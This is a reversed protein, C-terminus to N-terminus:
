LTVKVPKITGDENFEMKDICTERNYGGSLGMKIGEPRTFRHYIMYWEDTGPVNLVSNHGTGFIQLKPNQQLIIQEEVKAPKGNRVFETPSDSILYRIRYRASRTINESWMFYYLGNREFVYTGELYHYEGIKERPILEKITGPAISVMDKGLEAMWLYSNGWYIYYKGSKPDQFVDPDIVINPSNLEEQTLMPKGLADVFPGEPKDAVAVGITKNAVFYYYYLYGTASSKYNQLSTTKSKKVKKEIICPAWAYEKGWSLERLDLIVGEDKWTKLDTSSFCHFDFNHWGFSGDTTPYIYYKGTQKSYLAEPDAYLGPFVPNNVDAALHQSEQDDSWKQLRNYEEETLRLFSGHQPGNIGEIDRPNSFKSLIENADCLRYRHPHSSYEVYGIQWAGGKLQFASAGECMKNGEFKVYNDADPEPWPGTLSKSKTTFIGRTGGEKKIMMHYMSDSPIWNIDADITAYGWDFLLQPKTITTFSEDAYSYYMRDYEEVEPDLMSYYIMYGGKHGDPWVHTADWIIQPAWVRVVSPQWQRFDFSRSRWHILDNSTLLDIGYNQWENQKGMRKTSSNNMDTTVMLFGKNNHRRCIYADRTGGEIKAMQTPSFISDGCLLDHFHLGDQSLAYATWQGHDSMHCNLYGYTEEDPLIYNGSIAKALSVSPLTEAVSALQKLEKNSVSYNYIRFDAIQTEALYKDGRFPAKGIWCFSPAEKFTEALIPMNNNKGILIGNLYLEGRKGHQRYLAHVWVDRNAQGGQMIIEEHNYGGTSTEFRQENLRMAMYPGEEPGNEALNSFAFLFHGYGQLNCAADVRYYVSISFDTLSKILTGYESSMECYGDNGGLNLVSVDGIKEIKAGNKLEGSEIPSYYKKSQANAMVAVCFLMLAIVKKM